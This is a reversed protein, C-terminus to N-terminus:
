IFITFYQFNNKCGLIIATPILTYYQPYINAAIFLIYTLQSFFITWKITLKKILITPLFICSIILSIYITSLSATGLGNVTNLSSQLNAISTYATFLLIWAFGIIILNKYVVRKVRKAEAADPLTTSTTSELRKIDGDLTVNYIEVDNPTTTQDM